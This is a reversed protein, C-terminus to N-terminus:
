GLVDGSCRLLAAQDPVRELDRDLELQVNPACRQCCGEGLSGAPQTEGESQPIAGSLVVLVVVQIWAKSILFPRGANSVRDFVDRELLRVVNSRSSRTTRYRAQACTHLPPRSITRGSSGPGVGLCAAKVTHDGEDEHPRAPRIRTTSAARCWAGASIPRSSRSAGAPT